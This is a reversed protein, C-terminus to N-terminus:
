RWPRRGTGCVEGVAFRWRGAGASCTASTAAQRAAAGAGPLDHAVALEVGPVRPLEAPVLTARLAASAAQQRAALRANELALAIRRALDEALGAGGPAAPGRAPRGPSCAWLGGRGALPFCWAGGTPWSPWARPAGRDLAATALPWAAAAGPGGQAARRSRGAM